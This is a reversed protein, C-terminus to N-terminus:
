SALNAAELGGLVPGLRDSWNTRYTGCAMEALRLRQVDSTGAAPFTHLLDRLYREIDYERQCGRAAFIEMATRASTLASETNVLKANMLEADCPEGRDLAEAAQYATLRATLLASHMDGLKTAVTPLKALPRGQHRRRTCFDVTDEFVAQHVGLAVAALNLRGYLISSSFAVDLGEGEAGIRNGAPVRCGDFLIEGFSFGHLGMQDGATGLRFGPRDREVLFATLGRKGDGTRVVVGHVDGFHSNGVFCKHGDLVYDDGDRVAVSTMDLFNGGATRETLAITPVCEGSAFRPLWHRKQNETGFHLVKAVGLQSAQMVAGMAGSVRSLEEIVITKALHGRGSGGYRVPVTLGVWGRRTLRRSLEVAPGHAHELLPVSPRVEREAFDRVEARLAEHARSTLYSM